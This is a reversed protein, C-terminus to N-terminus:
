GGQAAQIVVMRDGAALLQRAWDARPVVTGNVAVAMGKRGALGLQDVLASVTAAAGLPHPRDNVFITLVSGFSDSASM